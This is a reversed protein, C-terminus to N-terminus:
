LKTDHSKSILIKGRQKFDEKGHLSGLIFFCLSFSITIFFLDGFIIINKGHINWAQM